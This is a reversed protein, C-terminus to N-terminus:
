KSNSKVSRLMCDKVAQLASGERGQRSVIYLTPRLVEETEIPIVAVDPVERPRSCLRPVVEVGRGQLVLSHYEDYESTAMAFTHRVGTRRFWDEFHGDDSYSRNSWIMLTEHQLEYYTLKLRDALPHNRPLVAVATDVLALESVLQAQKIPGYCLAADVTGALVAEILRVNSDTVFEVLTNPSDNELIKITDMRIQPRLRMVTGVRVIGVAGRSLRAAESMTEDFAQLVSYAKELIAAGAATLVVSRTSREFLDVGLSRELRKTHLSLASQSMHLRDAARTFHLEEALVAFQRLDRIEVTM